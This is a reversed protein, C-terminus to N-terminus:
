ILDYSFIKSSNSSHAKPITPFIKILPISHFKNSLIQICPTPSISKRLSKQQQIVGLKHITISIEREEFFFEGDELVFVLLNVFFEEDAIGKTKKCFGFTEGLV